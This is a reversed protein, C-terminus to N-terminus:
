LSQGVNLLSRVKDGRFVVRLMYQPSRWYIWSENKLSYTRCAPPPGYTLLVAKENMGPVVEGRRIREKVADPQDKLLEDLPTTTFTYAIFDRMTCLRYGSDFKITYERGDGATKFTIRNLYWNTNVPEIETGVPIYSGHQINLCSIDSPDTYWINYKTYIKQGVSQQLVESFVVPEACGCLGLVTAAVTFIAVLRWM